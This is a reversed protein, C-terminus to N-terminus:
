GAEAVGNSNLARAHALDEMLRDVIAPLAAELSASIAESPEFHRGVVAYILVKEPLRGLREALHLADALDVAHSSGAARSEIAVAPWRWSYVTGAPDTSQCADCVLLQDIGTLWNLLDLPTAAWRVSVNPMNAAAIRDAIRWGAADDGHPSGLGVLLTTGTRSM